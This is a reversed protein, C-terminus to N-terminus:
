KGVKIGTIAEFKKADFNPITKIYAKDEKSFKKWMNACAEKFEHKKLYGGTYHFFPNADKEKQTMDTDSVWETLIMSSLLSHWKTNMWERLTMNTQCDFILINQEVTCFVGSSFNTSNWNGTNSDGTNSNGTNMDGTNRNGTNWDGTNANGTNMDGTNMNGTNSNGTNSDGTNWDGYEVRTKLKKAAWKKLEERTRKEDVAQVYWKPTIDQDVKWTWKELPLSYDADKPSIEVRLIKPEKATDSLAFEKIIDEHGDSNESWYVRDKTLVFSAPNCM